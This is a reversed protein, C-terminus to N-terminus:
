RRGILGLILLLAVVLLSGLAGLAYAWFMVGGGHAHPQAAPAPRGEGRQERQWRVSAAIVASMMRRPLGQQFRLLVEAERMGDQVPMGLRVKEAAIREVSEARLVLLPALRGDLDDLLAREMDLKQRDMTVQALLDRGQGMM